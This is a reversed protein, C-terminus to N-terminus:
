GYKASQYEEGVEEMGDFNANMKAKREERTKDPMANVAAQNAELLPQLIRYAAHAKGKKATASAVLNTQGITAAAEIVEADTLSRMAAEWTGEDLSKRVEAVYVDAHDVATTVPGRKPNRVEEAYKGGAGQLGSSWRDAMAGASPVTTKMDVPNGESRIEAGPDAERATLVAERVMARFEAPDQDPAPRPIRIVTM